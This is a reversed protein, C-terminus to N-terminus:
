DLYQGDRTQFHTPKELSKGGSQIWEATMQLMQDLSIRPEGMFKKMKSNDSLLATSSEKGEFVPEKKMIEGFRAAIDRIRIKDGTVNLIEPPSSVHELCRLAINNADGQWIVNAYGMEINVPRGENVQKGIEFLVGYRLDIAYNLRYLLIKTGKERSYYEFVRERGLCSNSYEGYPVAPDTENPGPSDCPWFNYVNGTSFVVINSDSFYDATYSPAITNMGWYLYDTGRLGFKRGAMYIINKVKPLQRVEEQNLLDCQICTIGLNELKNRSEIDSFRSVGIVKKRVGAKKLAKVALNGLTPGMKGGIGLILIDGDLKKMLEVTENHPVSMYEELEQENDM